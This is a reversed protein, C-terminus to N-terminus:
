VTMTTKTRFIKTTKPLVMSSTKIIVMKRSVAMGKDRQQIVWELLQPGIKAITSQKGPHLSRAKASKPLGTTPNDSNMKGESKMWKSLQTPSLQLSQQEFYVATKRLSFGQDILEKAKTVVERKLSLPYRKRRTSMSAHIHVLIVVLM